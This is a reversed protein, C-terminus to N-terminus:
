MEMKEGWFGWSGITELDSPVIDTLVKLVLSGMKVSLAKVPKVDFVSRGNRDQSTRITSNSNRSIHQRTQKTVHDREDRIREVQRSPHLVQLM